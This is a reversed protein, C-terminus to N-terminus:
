VHEVIYKTAAYDGISEYLKWGPTFEIAWVFKLRNMADPYLIIRKFNPGMGALGKLIYPGEAVPNLLDVVIEELRQCSSLSSISIVENDSRVHHVLTLTAVIDKMGDGLQNMAEEVDCIM